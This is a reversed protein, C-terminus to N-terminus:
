LVRAIKSKLICITSKLASFRATLLAHVEIQLKVKKRFGSPTTSDIFDWVGLV